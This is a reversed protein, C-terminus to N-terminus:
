NGIHVWLKRRPSCEKASERSTSICVGAPAASALNRIAKSLKGM